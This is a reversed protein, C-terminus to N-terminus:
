EALNGANDIIYRFKCLSVAYTFCTCPVVFSVGRREIKVPAFGPSVFSDFRKVNKLFSLNGKKVAICRNKNILKQNKIGAFGERAYSTESSTDSYKITQQQFANDFGTLYYFVM